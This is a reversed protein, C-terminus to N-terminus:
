WPVAGHQFPILRRPSGTAQIEDQYQVSLTPHSFPRFHQARSHGGLYKRVPVAGRYTCYLVTPSPNHIPKRYPNIMCAPLARPFPAALIPITSLFPLPGPSQMSAHTVLCDSRSPTAILSAHYATRRKSSKQNHFCPPLHCTSQNVPYLLSSNGSLSLSSSSLLPARSSPEHRQSNAPYPYPNILPASTFRTLNQPLTM